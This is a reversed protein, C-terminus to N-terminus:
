SKYHPRRPKHCRTTQYTLVLTESSFVMELKLTVGYQVVRDSLAM